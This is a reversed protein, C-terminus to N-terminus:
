NLTFSTTGGSTITFEREFTQNSRTATRGRYIIKYKGPQMIYHHLKNEPPIRALWVLEDRNMMYLDAVYQQSFASIVLKGPQPLEVTTTTSQDVNIDTIIKRPLTFIELDYKGVLYKETTNFNQVHMTNMTNSKRVICKLDQYNTLGTIKLQLLGQPADIAIINHRGAIIEVDTKQVSPITHVVVRYKYTPDLTITDPIGRENMTHVYNTILQNSHMDYFSMNVNTEVPKGNIDLLNVQVTTNNLAQTIIVNLANNFSEETNADYYRGVCEFAKRFDETGGIGIIFPKLAVGKSQLAESVACPDGDCEEIGDTILIIINRVGIEAPFDSASEQLSQAILTTGKPIIGKIKEKIEKHNNYKFPVELRTDKCNRQGPPTTHGYVRLAVQVDKAQELSDMIKSLLRKAINIRIDKDMSAYMSGSADLLFLIRTKPKVYQAQVQIMCCWLLIIALLAKKM